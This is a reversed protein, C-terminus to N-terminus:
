VSLDVTARVSGINSGAPIENIGHLEHDDHEDDHNRGRNLGLPDDVFGIM